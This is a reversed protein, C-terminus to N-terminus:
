ENAEEWLGIVLGAVAFLLFIDERIILWAVFNFAFAVLGM